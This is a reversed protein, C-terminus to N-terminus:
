EEERRRRSMLYGVNGLIILVIILIHSSSLAGTARTAFDVRGLLHEYEAAGKMGALMGKIQGADLPNFGEPAMVATPAYIIPTRYQGYIYAIWIDLTATPTIDAILGVDKIDKIEQMMPIDSLPTGNIDKGITRPINRAFGQILLVINAIPRLGWHVWDRGYVKGTERAIREAYDYSFKSGQPDWAIIAFKKDKMFMHRIIAETQPGNEAITGSAWNISIVAIKGDPINEVANYAGKVAPSAMIPFDLKWILPAAIILALLVYMIRRDIHQLRDFWRM